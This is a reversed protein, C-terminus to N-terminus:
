AFIFPHTDILNEITREACKQWSFKKLTNAHNEILRSRLDKNEALKKMCNVLQDINLTDFFLANGQAIERSSPINSAIIPLDFSMAELLPIGFGEFLSPFVFCFANQMLLNKETEGIYDTFVVNSKHSTVQSKIEKFGVGPKGALVLKYNPHEKSFKEFAQILTKINKKTEIRGVFLFYKGRKLDYKEFIPSQSNSITFKPKKFGLPIVKVKNPDCKYFHILDEKTITSPAIIKHAHKVAFKAGWNLYLRSKWSYSDPFRKFAVDHITIITKKPHILPMLHSPVFLNDIKKNRFVEWSLRIQTWLRSFPINIQHVPLDIKRPSILTIQDAFQQVMENILFYSYNEVGTRQATNNYRSADIYIM